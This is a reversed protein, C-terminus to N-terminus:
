PWPCSRELLLGSLNTCEVGGVGFLDGQAPPTWLNDYIFLKGLLQVQHALDLSSALQAKQILTSETFDILANLFQTDGDENPNPPGGPPPPLISLFNVNESCLSPPPVPTPPNQAVATHSTIAVVVTVAATRYMFKGYLSTKRPEM